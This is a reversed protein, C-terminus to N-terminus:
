PNVFISPAAATPTAASPNSPATAAPAPSAPRPAAPTVSVPIQITLAPGTYTPLALASVRGAVCRETDKPAGPMRVNEAKGAGTVEFAISTQLATASDWCSSLTPLAADLIEQLKERPVSTPGTGQAAEAPKEAERAGPAGAPKSLASWDGRASRKQRAVKAYLVDPDTEGEPAVAATPAPPQEVVKTCAVGFLAVAVLGSFAPRLANRFATRFM